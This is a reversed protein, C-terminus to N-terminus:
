LLSSLLCISNISCFHIMLYQFSQIDSKAAENWKRSKGIDSKIMKMRELRCWLSVCIFLFNKKKHKEKSYHRTTEHCFLNVFFSEKGRRMQKRKMRHLIWYTILLSNEYWWPSSNYKLQIASNFFYLFLLFLSFFYFLFEESSYSSERWQKYFRSTRIVIKVYLKWRM